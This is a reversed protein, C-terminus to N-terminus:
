DVWTVWYPSDPFVISRGHNFQETDTVTLSKYFGSNFKSSLRQYKGCAVKEQGRHGL